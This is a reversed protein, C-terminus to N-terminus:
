IRTGDSIVANKPIVVIGDRISYSETERDPMGKQSGIVVSEGVRAGKDIIAGEISSDRGIGMDPRDLRRNEALDGDDEYFDAGLMVVRQLKVGPRIISRLGVICEEIDAKSVRCGEAIAVRQMRCDDTLSPPLFRARTYIPRRPDFFSFVPEPRTLALNAEYYSQITGIDEWYGEFPFAYVRHTDIASPIIHSGFDHGSGQELLKELVDSRIVYVGMSGMYPRDRGSTSELGVLEEATSPKERFTVIRGDDNMKLIGFRGADQANVPLVAISVDARKGRHFEIFAGYDMRYIQDGALILVDESQRSMIRPIQRRVADATGQYWDSSTHTQEAPMIEVFGRTFVDFQYTQQVHRHLSASLFQTLVSIRSIGSNICNSLPIDILRYKGALPVAPKARLQTLPHLRSGRGGGLVIALVDRSKM